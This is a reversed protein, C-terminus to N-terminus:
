SFIVVFFIVLAWAIVILLVNYAINHKPTFWKGKNYIVTFGGDKFMVLRDEEAAYILEGDFGRYKAEKLIDEM